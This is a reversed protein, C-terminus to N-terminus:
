PRWIEQIFIEEVDEGSISDGEEEEDEDVDRASFEYGAEGEEDETEPADLEEQQIKALELIRRSTKPDLLAESDENEQVSKKPNKKRKGPESVRGYTAEQQDEDLQVLLPDHRTKGSSKIARPM